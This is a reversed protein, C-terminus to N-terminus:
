VSPTLEETREAAPVAINSGEHPYSIAGEGKM